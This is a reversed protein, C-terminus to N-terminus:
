RHYALNNSNILKIGEARYTDAEAYSTVNADFVFDMPDQVSYKPWAGISADRGAWSNPDLDHVFSAWSYSMLNSLQTYSYSKNAFPNVEYGLGQLNNFVFAVEQFHTVGLEWPIGAPIANFRYCYASVGAAAWTVCTLRRNAIFYEDSFYAASRRHEAGYPPGLRVDGGLTQSSPIGDNSIDPYAVLLKEILPEPLKYQTSTTTNLYYVFDAPTNVDLQGFGTAEDSNAGSIIPVHVFHGDALQLSGYRTIFDGDVTPNYGLSFQTTNLISNLTPFPIRRMCDLTDTENDCGTTSVLAAYCPEYYDTGNLPGYAVPNGSEMMAARFLNDDRGNFATLHFGVSAAGASEGWITVKAPDGGFAGINENIWHLALRQDKLGINTQGAGQVADGNLFGFPGLRYAISAAM